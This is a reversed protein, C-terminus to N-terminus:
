IKKTYDQIMLVLERYADLQQNIGQHGEPIEPSAKAGNVEIDLGEMQKRMNEVDKELLVKQDELRKFENIATNRLGNPASEKEIQTNLVEQRSRLQDYEKRIGERLELTKYRKFELDYIAYQVAQLKKKLYKKKTNFM